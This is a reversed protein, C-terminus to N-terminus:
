VGLGFVDHPMGQLRDAQEDMGGAADKGYREGRADVFAQYPGIAVLAGQEVLHEAQEIEQGDVSWEEEDDVGVVGGALHHAAQELLAIMQHRPDLGIRHGVSGDLRLFALLFPSSGYPLFIFSLDKSQSKLDM